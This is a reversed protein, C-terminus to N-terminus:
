WIQRGKRSVCSGTKRGGLLYCIFHKEKKGEAGKGDIFLVISEETRPERVRTWKSKAGSRFTPPQLQPSPFPPVPKQLASAHAQPPASARCQGPQSVVKGLGAPGRIERKKKDKRKHSVNCTPLSVVLTWCLHSSPSLFFFLGFCFGFVM